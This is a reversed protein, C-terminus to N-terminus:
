NKTAAASRTAERLSCRRLAIALNIRCFALSDCVRRQAATAQSRTANQPSPITADRLEVRTQMLVAPVFLQARLFQQEVHNQSPVTHTASAGLDNPDPSM